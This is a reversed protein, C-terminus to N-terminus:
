SRLRFKAIYIKAEKNPSHKTSNTLQCMLFIIGTTKYTLTRSLACLLFLDFKRLYHDMVYISLLEFAYFPLV